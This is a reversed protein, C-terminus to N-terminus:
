SGLESDIVSLIRRTYISCIIAIEFAPRVRANEGDPHLALSRMLENFKRLYFSADPKESDEVEIYGGRCAACAQAREDGLEDRELIGKDDCMACKVKVM